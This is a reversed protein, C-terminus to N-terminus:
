QIRGIKDKVKEKSKCIQMLLYKKLVMERWDETEDAFAFCNVKHPSNGVTCLPIGCAVCRYRARLTGM